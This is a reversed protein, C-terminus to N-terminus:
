SGPDPGPNSEWCRYLPLSWSFSRINEGQMSRFNQLAYLHPDQSIGELEPHNPWHLCINESVFPPLMNYTRQSPDFQITNKFSNKVDLVFISKRESAGM